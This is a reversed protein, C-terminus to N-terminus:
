RELLLTDGMRWRASCLRRRDMEDRFAGRGLQQDAPTTDRKAHLFAAADWDDPLNSFRLEALLKQWVDWPRECTFM